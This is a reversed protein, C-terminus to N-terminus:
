ARKVALGRARRVGRAGGNIHLIPLDLNTKQMYIPM